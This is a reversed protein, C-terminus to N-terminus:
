RLLRRRETPSRAFRRPTARVKPVVVLRHDRLEALAVPPPHPVAPEVLLRGGGAAAILPGAAALEATFTASGPRDQKWAVLHGGVRLLPLALEALEGLSGVARGTVVDWTGRQSAEHGLAEARVPHVTIEPAPEGSARLIGGVAQAVVALFHAKKGVSDVLAVRRLPFTVALVLGPFGGGSGLDLLVAGPPVLRRLLPVATLSDAVHGVAMRGPTRLATLNLQANWALLLRVHAELAGRQVESLEIGLAEAAAALAGDFEPGAAPLAAPDDPLPPRAAARTV